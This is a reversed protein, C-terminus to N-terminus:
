HTAGGRKRAEIRLPDSNALVRRESIFIEQARVAQRRAKTQRASKRPRKSNPVKDSSRGLKIRTLFASPRQFRSRQSGGDGGTTPPTGPLGCHRRKARHGCRVAECFDFHTVTANVEFKAVVFFGNAKVLTVPLTSCFRARDSAFNIEFGLRPAAAHLKLRGTGNLNRPSTAPFTRVNAGWGPSCIRHVCAESASRTRRPAHLPVSPTRPRKSRSAVASSRCLLYHAPHADLRTSKKASRGACRFYVAPIQRLPRVIRLECQLALPAPKGRVAAILRSSIIIAIGFDFKRPV